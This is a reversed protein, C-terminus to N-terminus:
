APNADFAFARLNKECPCAVARISRESRRRARDDCEAMLLEALFARCSM